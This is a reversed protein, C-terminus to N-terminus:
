KHINWKYINIILYNKNFATKSGWLTCTKGILIRESEPVYFEDSIINWLPHLMQERCFCREQATECLALLNRMRKFTDSCSSKISIKIKKLVIQLCIFLYIRFSASSVVACNMQERNRSLCLLREMHRLQKNYSVRPSNIHGPRFQLFRLTSFRTCLARTYNLKMTPDRRESKGITKYGAWQGWFM